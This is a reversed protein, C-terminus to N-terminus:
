SAVLVMYEDPIEQNQRYENLKNRLTRISIQLVDATRTKNWCNSKLTEFILMKEMERVTTGVQVGAQQKDHSYTTALTEGTGIEDPMIITDRRMVVSREIVNELERVNGPWSYSKLKDLVAQKLNFSPVGNEKCYKDVFYQALEEIDDPRERLPPLVIPVVNLRYYLDERFEGARVAQILNRNTTAIIRVDVKISKEGGVREFEREQIVRLLKAQLSPPIESIEDLLITGGNALEFRGLRKNHAGTFAGKEHGFLESEMLNEPMAACNLRIFPGNARDSAKHVAHAIMEKGTGSEGQILVTARSAAVTEVTDLIQQFCGSTGIVDNFRYKDNLEKKLYTNENILRKREQVKKLILEIQDISFPKLIYDFAGVKMAEVATEITGYATMVIVEAAPYQGKVRKLVEIGNMQPMNIDTFVMDYETDELLDIADFGNKASDVTIGLRELTEELFRRMLIEDDVILVRDITM